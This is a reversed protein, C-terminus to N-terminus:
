QQGCYLRAKTRMYFEWFTQEIIVFKNNITLNEFIDEINFILSVCRNPAWNMYESLGVSRVFPFPRKERFVYGGLKDKFIRQQLHNVRM